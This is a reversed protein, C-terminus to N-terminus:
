GSRAPPTAAPGAPTATTTPLLGTMLERAFAAIDQVVRDRADATQRDERIAAVRSMFASGVIAADAAATVQRVQEATSIGFGVALPLDTVQRLAAIRDVLDTPLDRRAGTVGGRALLYVFGSCAAAIRRARDIPTTPAILLSFSLDAEAAQDRLAMCEDVPLDPVILGDIGAQSCARLFRSCGLREIISYSVMAVLGMDLRDRRDAVMELVAHPTTRAVTLAHNMSAQIVPGDAIPDSFPIGLECIAAGAEHLVDLLRGTTAVDPDGATLFPMLAKAGRNRLDAFIRDIRNMRDHKMRDHKYPDHEIQDHLYLSTVLAAIRVRRPL